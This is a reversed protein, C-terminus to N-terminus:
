PVYKFFQFNLMTFLYILVAASSITIHYKGGKKGAPLLLLTLLSFLYLIFKNSLFDLNILLFIMDAAILFFLITHQKPTLIIKKFYILWGIIYNIVLLVLGTITLLSILDTNM